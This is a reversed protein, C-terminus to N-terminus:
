SSECQEGNPLIESRCVRAAHLTATLLTDIDQQATRHNVLAARIVARGHIYTLSPAALGSLQIHRIMARNMADYYDPSRSKDGCYRYCVINLSVDAMLELEAIAGVQQALSQALHCCHSIMAGIKESGFSQFTFWVKLARFGRSLDIGYDCPWPSNAALGEEERQLYPDAAAFSRRHADGDRVLFM